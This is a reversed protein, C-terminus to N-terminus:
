FKYIIPIIVKAQDPDNTIMLIRARSRVKRLDDANATVKLKATAGPEINQKNLSVELGGTLMQLQRITLTSKGQNTITIEDRKRSKNGFEGLDIRGKSLSLKPANAKEAATLNDLDPLLIINVPIEKDPAVKEGPFSGLYISTQTLGLERLHRSDLQLTAVGTHGPAIRTPKVEGRLYAPLHMLQPEVMQDSDNFLHIKVIPMDGRNVDNFEVENTDTRLAGITYPYLGKFNKVREVVVGKLTLVFPQEGANSYVALQKQFHGMQKADYTASVKFSQGPAVAEKPYDATTCGCSSRVTNIILPQDGSNKLIFEAKLPQQFAIQGCNITPNATSINQAFTSTASAWLGFLALTITTKNM